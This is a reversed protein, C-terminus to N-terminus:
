REFPGVVVVLTEADTSMAILYRMGAEFAVEVTRTGKGFQTSAYLELMYTGPLLELKRGGEIPKGDVSVVKTTTGLNLPDYPSMGVLLATEAAPRAEGEYARTAGCSVSSSGLLLALVSLALSRPMFRM